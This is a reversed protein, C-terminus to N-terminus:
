SGGGINGPGLKRFLNSFGEMRSARRAEIQHEVEDYHKRLCVRMEKTTGSQSVNHRKCEAQLAALVHTRTYEPSPM